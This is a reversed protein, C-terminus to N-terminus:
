SRSGVCRAEAASTTSSACNAARRGSRCDGRENESPSGGSRDILLRDDLFLRVGDDSTVDFAWRGVPLEVSGWWRASFRDSGVRSLRGTDGWDFDIVPEFRYAAPPTREWGGSTPADLTVGRYYEGLFGDPVLDFSFSAGRNGQFYEM